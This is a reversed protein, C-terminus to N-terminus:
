LKQAAILAREVVAPVLVGAQVVEICLLAARGIQLLPKLKQPLKLLPRQIFLGILEM